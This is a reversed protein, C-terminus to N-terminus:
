EQGWNEAVIESGTAINAAQVEKLHSDLRATKSAGSTKAKRTAAKRATTTRTTPEMTKRTAAKRPTAKKAARKPAPTVIEEGVEAPRHQRPLKASPDINRLRLFGREDATLPGGGGQVLFGEPYKYSRTEVYGWKDLHERRETTCRTCVLTRYWGGKEKGGTSPAWSHQYDRCVAGVTPLEREGPLINGKQNAATM